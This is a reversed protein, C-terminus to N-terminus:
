NSETESFSCVQLATNDHDIHLYHLRAGDWRWTGAGFPERRPSVTIIGPKQWLDAMLSKTSLLALRLRVVLWSATLVLLSRQKM